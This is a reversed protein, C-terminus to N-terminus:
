IVHYVSLYLFAIFLVWCKLGSWCRVLGRFLGFVFVFEKLFPLHFGRVQGFLIIESLRNARCGLLLGELFDFWVILHFFRHENFLCDAKTVTPLTVYPGWRGNIQDARWDGPVRTGIQKLAKNSLLTHMPWGELFERFINVM